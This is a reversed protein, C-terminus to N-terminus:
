AQLLPVPTTPADPRHWVPKEFLGQDYVDSFVVSTFRFVGAGRALGHEQLAQMTWRLMAQLRTDPDHATQSPAVAVYCVLVGKSGFVREAAGSRIMEARGMVHEKFRQQFMSGGDIEFLVRLHRGDTRVWHMYADPVVNLGAHGLEYSLRCARLTIEGTGSGWRRATVYLATLALCHRLQPYSIARVKHRFYWPVPVGERALIDKGLRAMTFIRRTNGSSGSLEPFRYLLRPTHDAGGALTALRDRVRTLSGPSFLAHAVQGASAYRVKALLKLIALDQPRVVVLKRPRM